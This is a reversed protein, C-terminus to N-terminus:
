IYQMYIKCTSCIFDNCTQLPKKTTKNKVFVLCEHLRTDKEKKLFFFGYKVAHM